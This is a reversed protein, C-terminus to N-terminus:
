ALAADLDGIAAIRNRSIGVDAPLGAAGTGDVLLGHEIVIDFTVLWDCSSHLLGAGLWSLILLRGAEADGHCIM